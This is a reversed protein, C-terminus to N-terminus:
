PAVQRTVQHSEEGTITSVVTTNTVSICFRLKDKKMSANGQVSWNESFSIYVKGPYSKTKQTGLYLTKGTNVVM